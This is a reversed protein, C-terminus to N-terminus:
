RLHEKLDDDVEFDGSEILEVIMRIFQPSALEENPVLNLSLEEIEVVDLDPYDDPSNIPSHAKGTGLDFYLFYRVEDPKHSFSFVVRHIASPKLISLIIEKYKYYRAEMDMYCKAYDYPFFGYKFFYDKAKKKANKARKNTGYLVYVLMEKNIKRLKAHSLYERSTRM